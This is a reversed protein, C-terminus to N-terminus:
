ITLLKLHFDFPYFSVVFYFTLFVSSLVTPLGACCSTAPDSGLVSASPWIAVKHYCLLDTGIVVVTLETLGESSLIEHPDGIVNDIM